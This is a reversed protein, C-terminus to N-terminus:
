ASYYELSELPVHLTKNAAFAELLYDVTVRVRPAILARHPYQLVMEYQGPHHQGYMVVKLDGSMLHEWALHVAAQAIGVGDLAAGVIAEPASLTLIASESPDLTTISGDPAMFNWPDVSGGLFRRAIIDQTELEQISRPIRYRSLYHPSAVLVSNLHCVPRSILASDHIRGGRLALDYGERVLDVMRDDFDVAVSLGKHQSLLGPILPMLQGQGIAVSTSIRVRGHPESRQAVVNNIASDLASLALRAERLFAAGEETLKLTRTTRNFLRIGLKKELGAVNKSVAASTIGQLRGAAAFSGADAATIFSYIARVQHSSEM